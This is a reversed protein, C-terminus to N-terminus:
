DIKQNGYTMFFVKILISFISTNRYSFYKIPFLFFVQNFFMTMRLVFYVTVDKRGRDHLLSVSVKVDPSGLSTMAGLLTSLVSPSEAGQSRSVMMIMIMMTTAIM